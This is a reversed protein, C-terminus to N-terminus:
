VNGALLHHRIAHADFVRCEIHGRCLIHRRDDCFTSNRSRRILLRQLLQTALVGCDASLYQIGIASHQRSVGVSSKAGVRRLILCLPEGHKSKNEPANEEHNTPWQSQHSQDSIRKYPQKQQRKSNHPDGDMPDQSRDPCDHHQRRPQQRRWKSYSNRSMFFSHVYIAM